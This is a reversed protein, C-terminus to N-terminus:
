SKFRHKINNKEIFSLIQKEDDESIEYGHVNMGEDQMEIYNSFEENDKTYVVLVTPDTLEWRNSTDPDVKVDIIVNLSDGLQEIDKIKVIEM